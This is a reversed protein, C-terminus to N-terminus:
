RKLKPRGIAWNKGLITLSTDLDGNEFLEYLEPRNAGNNRKYFSEFAGNIILDVNDANFQQRLGRFVSNNLETQSYGVTSHKLGRGLRALTKHKVTFPRTDVPKPKPVPQLYPLQPLPAIQKPQEGGHADMWAAWKQDHRKTGTINIFNHQRLIGHNRGQCPCRCSAPPYRSAQCQGSCYALSEEEM